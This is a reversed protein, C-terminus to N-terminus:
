QEGLQQDSLAATFMMQQWCFTSMMLFPRRSLFMSFESVTSVSHEFDMMNDLVFMNGYVDVVMYHVDHQLLIHCLQDHQFVTSLIKNMYEVNFYLPDSHSLEHQWGKNVGHSLLIYTQTHMGRVINARQARARVNVRRAATFSNNNNSKTTQQETVRTSIGVDSIHRLLTETAVYKTFIDAPNHVTNIKVIRVLDHAVLQQIFLHKLEIHKAKKSSGIRTAMSKGSSSDTHIRINIKKMNLAEKLLNSIHLAETAGTNIAYLEAEASSLAITAQTRSGYHITAGFVKILFGTTSKRTTACGAWDSDVFVQIDPVAEATPTKTTPRVYHKYTTNGQRVQTLTETEAPRSNNATDTSKCAGKNCLWHRAKHLDDM